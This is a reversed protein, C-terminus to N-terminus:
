IEVYEPLFAYLTMSSTLSNSDYLVPVENLSEVVFIDNSGSYGDPETYAIVVSDKSIARNYMVSVEYNSQYDGSGWSATYNICFIEPIEGCIDLIDVTRYNNSSSGDPSTFTKSLSSLNEDAITVSSCGWSPCIYFTCVEPIVQYEHSVPVTSSNRSYEEEYYMGGGSNKLSMIYKSTSLDWFIHNDMSRAAQTAHIYVYGADSLSLESTPCQYYSESLSIDSVNGEVVTSVPVYATSKIEVNLHCNNWIYYSFEGNDFEIDNSLDVPGSGYDGTVKIEVDEESLDENNLGRVYMYFYENTYPKTFTITGTGSISDTEGDDFYVYYDGSVNITYTINIDVIIPINVEQEMTTLKLNTEGNKRSQINLTGTNGSSSHSGVIAIYSDDMLYEISETTDSPILTYNITYTDELNSLETINISSNDTQIETCIIILKLNNSVISVLSNWSDDISVPYNKAILADVLEQKSDILEQETSELSQKTNELEQEVSELEQETSELEQETSELSQKTSELEQKSDILEQETSELSQKTNNIVESMASFTSDKTISADDIADAILQKGSDVNQFLENIAGVVTKNTTSLTEDNVKQYENITALGEIKYKIEDELKSLPISGDKFLESSLTIYDSDDIDLISKFVVFEFIYDEILGENWLKDGISVINRGEITYDIDEYAHADNIFVILSDKNKDFDIGIDVINTAKTLVVRNKFSIMKTTSKINITRWEGPDGAKTCIWFPEEEINDGTNIIIDGLEFTGETPLSDSSMLYKNSFYNNLQSM